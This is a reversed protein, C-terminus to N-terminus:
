EQWTMEVIDPKLIMINTIKEKKLHRPMKVKYNLILNGNDRKFSHLTVKMRKMKLYNEIDEKIQIKDKIVLRIFELEDHVM